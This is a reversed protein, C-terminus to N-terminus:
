KMFIAQKSPSATARFLHCKVTAPVAQPEPSSIVTHAETVKHEARPHTRTGPTWTGPLKEWGTISFMPLGLPFAFVPVILCLQFTPPACARELETGAAGGGWCLARLIDRGEPDGDPSLIVRPGSNHWSVKVGADGPLYASFLHPTFVVRPGAALSPHHVPHCLRLLTPELVGRTQQRAFCRARSAM